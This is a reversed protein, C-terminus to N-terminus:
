RIDTQLARLRARARVLDPLTSDGNRWRDVFESYATRALALDGMAEALEGIRLSALVWEEQGEFGWNWVERAAQFAALASDPRGIAAYAEGRLFPWLATSVMGSPSVPDLLDLAQRHRGNGAEIRALLRRHYASDTSTGGLQAALLRAVEAAEAPRGLELYEVAVHEYYLPEFTRGRLLRRAEDLRARALAPEGMGILSKASLTLNRVLSVAADTGRALLAAQDFLAVADRYRGQYLALYGSSRYGRMRQVADRRERMRGFASDAAAPQDLRILLGGFEHNINDRTLAMSDIREAQRYAALASDYRQEITLCSALNIWAPVFRPAMALTRELAPIAAPCDGNQFLMTGLGYLTTPSPYRDAMTRAIARAAPINGARQNVERDLRLREREGLRHGFRQATALYARGSAPDNAATFSYASLSLYAMAFTSDHEIARLWHERAETWASRTWAWEGDSWAQLADLSNTSLSPLSDDAEITAELEGLARRISGTLRDLGQLLHARDDARAEFARLDRGTASAVIRGVLRFASDVRIVGIEAVIPLNERLAMEQALAGHVITDSRGMRAFTEGFRNRTFLWIRASQQLSVAAAAYLPRTLEADGTDNDIDALLVGTGPAVRAADTWRWWAFGGLLALTLTVAIPILWRRWSKATTHGAERQHAAIDDAPAGREILIRAAQRHLSERRSPPLQALIARRAAATKIRLAGNTTDVLASAGLAAERARDFTTATLGSLREAVIPDAAPGVIALAEILARAGAPLASLLAAVRAQLAPTPPPALLPRTTVWRGEPTPAIAGSEVFTTLLGVLAGPTGGAEARALSILEATTAPVLPAMSEVVRAQEAETLTPLRLRELTAFAPGAAAWRDPPGTLVLLLGPPRQRAVMALATLSVPDALPADDVVLAVPQEAAVDTVLRAFARDLPPTPDAAPLARFRERLAPTVTALAALLEPPVAATGPRDVLRGVADALLAPGSTPSATLDIVAGARAVAKIRGVFDTVLRTKGLGEDGEVVITLSEGRSAAQWGAELVALSEDRGILAPSLLGRLGPRGIPAPGADLLAQLSPHPETGLDRRCREVYAAYRGHAEAERRAAMLGTLLRSVAVEDHPFRDSWETAIRIAADRDGSGAARSALQHYSRVLKATLGAREGELWSRWEEDGLDELGDLFAGNPWLGVAEEWREAGVDREFEAADLALAPGLRVSDADARLEDGVVERIESLATRLSRRSRAEDAGPWLLAALTARAVPRSARRALYALLALEKRRRPLAPLGDRTLELSGLTTLRLSM